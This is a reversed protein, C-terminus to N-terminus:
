RGVRRGLEYLLISAAVTVNLSEPGTSMPITLGDFKAVIAPLDGTEGSLWLAVPGRVAYQRPDQGQRTAARVCHVSRRELETAVAEASSGTVVPLRLLSGMSGRLSKENWPSAGGPIVVIATAGFAEAARALAGLNGPDSIGAVVLLVADPAIEITALDRSIPTPALALIGPSTALSSVRALLDADVLRVEVSSTRQLERVRELRDHAVLVVEVSVGAALADDVLRDGQLAITSPDRGALVARARQVLPNQASRVVELDRANM